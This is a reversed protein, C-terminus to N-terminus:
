EAGQEALATQVELNLREIPSLNELDVGEEDASATKNLRDMVMERALARGTSDLSIIADHDLVASAEKYFDNDIAVEEGEDLQILGAEAMKILEEEAVPATGYM